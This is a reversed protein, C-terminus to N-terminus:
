ESANAWVRPRLLHAVVDNRGVIPLLHTIRGDGGVKWGQKEGMKHASIFHQTEFMIPLEM